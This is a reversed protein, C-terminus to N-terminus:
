AARQEVNPTRAGQFCVPVPDSVTLELRYGKSTTLGLNSIWVGKNADGQRGLSRTL